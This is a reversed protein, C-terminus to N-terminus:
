NFQANFAELAQEASYPLPSPFEMNDIISELDKLERKRFGQFFKFLVGGMKKIDECRFKNALTATEISHYSPDLERLKNTKMTAGFDSIVCQIKQGPIKKYLCNAAKIDCHVYDLEHLTKLGELLQRACEIREQFTLSKPNSLDKDYRPALYGQLAVPTQSTPNLSFAFHPPKQIGVLGPRQRYIDKLIDYEALLQIANKDVEQGKSVKVVCSESRTLDEVEYVTGWRGQGLRSKFLTWTKNGDSKILHLASGNALFYTKEISDLSSISGQFELDFLSKRFLTDSISPRISSWEFPHKIRGRQNRALQIRAPKIMDLYRDVAQAQRSVLSTHANRILKEFNQGKKPALTIENHSIGIRKSLSNINIYIAQNNHTCRVFKHTM